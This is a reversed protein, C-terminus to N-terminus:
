KKLYKKNKLPKCTHVTLNSRVATKYSHGGLGVLLLNVRELIKLDDVSIEWGGGFVTGTLIVNIM